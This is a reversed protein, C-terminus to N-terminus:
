DLPLPICGHSRVLCFFFFCCKVQDQRHTAQTFLLLPAHVDQSTLNFWAAWCLNAQLTVLALGLKRFDKETAWCKVRSSGGGQQQRWRVGPKIKVWLSLCLLELVLSTFVLLKVLPPQPSNHKNWGTEKTLGLALTRRYTRTPCQQHMQATLLITFDIKAPPHQHLLIFHCM